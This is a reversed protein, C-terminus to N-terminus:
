GRRAGMLEWGMHPVCNKEKPAKVNYIHFSRNGLLAETAAEQPTKFNYM